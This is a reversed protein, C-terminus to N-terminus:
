MTRRMSSRISTDRMVRPFIASRRCVTSMSSTSSSAMSTFRGISLAARDGRFARLVQMGRDVTLLASGAARDGNM